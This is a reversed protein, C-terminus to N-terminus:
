GYELVMRGIEVFGVFSEAVFDSLPDVVLYHRIDCFPILGLIDGFVDILLHSVSSVERTEKTDMVRRMQRVLPYCTYRRLFPIEEVLHDDGILEGASTATTKNPTEDTAIADTTRWQDLEALLDDLPNHRVDQTALLTDTEGNSFRTLWENLPELSM